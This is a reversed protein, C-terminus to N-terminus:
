ARGTVSVSASGSELTGYSVKCGVFDTEWKSGSCSITTTGNGITGSGSASASMYSTGNIAWGSCSIRANVSM